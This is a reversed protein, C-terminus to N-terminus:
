VYQRRGHYGHRQNRLHDPRGCLCLYLQGCLSEKSALRVLQEVAENLEDTAKIVDVELPNSDNVVDVANQYKESFNAWSDTTYDDANLGALLDILAQLASVDGEKFSLMQIAKLLEAWAEDIEDQTATKDAEVAQATELAKDFKKQVAGVADNYEDSGVLDNAAEITSRLVLKDVVTFSFEMETDFRSM